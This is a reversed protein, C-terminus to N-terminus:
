LYWGSCEQKAFQNLVDGDKNRSEILKGKGQEKYEILHYFHYNDSEGNALDDLAKIGEDLIEGMWFVGHRYVGCKEIYYM